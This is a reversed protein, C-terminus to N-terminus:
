GPRFSTFFKTVAKSDPQIKKGWVSLVFVRATATGAGAYCNGRRPWDSM